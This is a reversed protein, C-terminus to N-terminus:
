AGTNSASGNAKDRMAEQSAENWEDWVKQKQCVRRKFHSGTQIVKKCVIARM